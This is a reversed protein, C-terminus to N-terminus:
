SLLQERLVPSAARLSVPILATNATGATPEVGDFVLIVDIKENVILSSSGQVHLMGTMRASIIIDMSTKTESVSSSPHRAPGLYIQMEELLM